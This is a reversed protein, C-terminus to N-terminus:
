TAASLFGEAVLERALPLYTERTDAPDRSTGSANLAQRKRARGTMALAGM